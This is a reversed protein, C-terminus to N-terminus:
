RWGRCLRQPLDRRAPRGHSIAMALAGTVLSARMHTALQWGTVMRTALGPATALYLWGQGTRLCTIDGVLQTGPADATFDRGILDPNRAAISQCSCIREAM